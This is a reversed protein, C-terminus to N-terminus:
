VAITIDASQVLSLPIKKCAECFFKVGATTIKFEGIFIILRINLSLLFRLCAVLGLARALLYLYPLFFMACLFVFRVYLMKRCALVYFLLIAGRVAHCTCAVVFMSFCFLCVFVLFFLM